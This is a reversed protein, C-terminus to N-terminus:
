LFANKEERDVEADVLDGMKGSAQKTRSAAKAQEKVKAQHLRSFFDNSMNKDSGVLNNWKASSVPLAM